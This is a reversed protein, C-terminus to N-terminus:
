STFRSLADRLSVATKSLQASIGTVEEIDGTLSVTQDNIHDISDLVSETQAMAGHADELTTVVSMRANTMTNVSDDIMHEAVSTYEQMKAFSSSNERMAASAENVSQIIAGINDKIETLSQRSHEALKRVEDAVVAFGRGHEGVRAAEISSNLALLDTQDAIGGIKALVTEINKVDGSLVSLRLSLSQQASAAANMNEGILHLQERSRDLANAALEVEAVVASLKDDVNRLLSKAENGGAVVENVTKGNAVASCLM